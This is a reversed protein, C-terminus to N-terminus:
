AKKHEAAPGSGAYLAQELQRWRARVKQVAALKVHGFGRIQEPLSALEIALALNDATLKGLASSISTRYTEILEREMRREASRGCVDLATGRLVKLRALVKFAYWMWSGYTTKIPLGRADRKTWLPPALHFSLTFDGEFAQKLGREFDGNTYLRAVEYEDKYAM